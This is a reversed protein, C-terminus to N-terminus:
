SFKTKFWVIDGLHYKKRDQWKKGQFFTGWFWLYAKIIFPNALLSALHWQGNYSNRGATTFFSWHLAKKKRYTIPEGPGCWTIVTPPLGLVGVMIAAGITAGFVVAEHVLYTISTLSFFTISGLKKWPFFRTM